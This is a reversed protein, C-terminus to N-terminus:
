MGARVYVKDPAAISADKEVISVKIPQFGAKNEARDVFTLLYQHKLQELIQDLFPQFSVPSSFGIMYSEPKM